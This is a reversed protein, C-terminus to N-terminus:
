RSCNKQHRGRIWFGRRYDQILLDNKEDVKLDQLLSCWQYSGFINNRMEFIDRILTRHKGKLGAPSNLAADGNKEKALKLLAYREEYVDTPLKPRDAETLDVM